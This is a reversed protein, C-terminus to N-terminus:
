HARCYARLKDCASCYARLRSLIDELYCELHKQRQEFAATAGMAFLDTGVLGYRGICVERALVRLDLQQDNRLHDM